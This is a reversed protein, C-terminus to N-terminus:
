VAEGFRSRQVFTGALKDGLIDRAIAVPSVALSLYFDGEIGAITAIAHQGPVIGAPLFQPEVCYGSMGMRTTTEGKSEDGKLGGMQAPKLYALLVFNETHAIANGLEDLEPDETPLQFTLTANQLLGLLSAM